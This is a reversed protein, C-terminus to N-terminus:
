LLFPYLLIPKIIKNIASPRVVKRVTLTRRLSLKTGSYSCSVGERDEALRRLLLIM